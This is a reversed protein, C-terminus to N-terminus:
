IYLCLSAICPQARLNTLTMLSHLARELLYRAFPYTAAHIDVHLCKDTRRICRRANAPMAPSTHAFPTTHALSRVFQHM